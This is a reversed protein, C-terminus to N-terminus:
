QLMATTSDAEEEEQPSPPAVSFDLRVPLHSSGAAARLWIHPAEIQQSVLVHDIALGSVPAFSDPLPRPLWTGGDKEM